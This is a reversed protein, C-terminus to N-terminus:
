KKKVTVEQKKTATARARFLDMHIGASILLEMLDESTSGDSGRKWVIKEDDSVSAPNIIDVLSCKVEESIYGLDMQMRGNKYSSQESQVKKALGFPLVKRMVFWTLEQGEKVRLLTEDLSDTYLSYEEDTMDLASDASIAVRFTDAKGPLMIAM